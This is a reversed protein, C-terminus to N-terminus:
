AAFDEPGYSRRSTSLLKALRRRQEASPAMVGREWRSVTVGSVQLRWALQEQTYERRLRAQKITDGVSRKPM